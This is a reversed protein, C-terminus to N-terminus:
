WRLEQSKIARQFAEFMLFCIACNKRLFKAYIKAFIGKFLIDVNRKESIFINNKFVNSVNKAYKFKSHFPSKLFMDYKTCKKNKCM